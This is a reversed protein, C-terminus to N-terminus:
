EAMESVERIYSEMRKKLTSSVDFRSSVVSHICAIEKVQAEIPMKGTVSGTHRRHINLPAPHYGVKSGPAACAELYLRWDGALRYSDLDQGTRQLAAALADRRWVVGSVNLILNKISLYNTAFESGDTLLPETLAGYAVSSYYEKYSPMLPRGTEDIAKSDSFAFAVAPDAFLPVLTALFAPDCEDDAEAIWILEGRAAEIGKKWQGFVRGSNADNEVVSFTRPYQKEIHSLQALSDDTSCDDLVIIERIPYSQDFIGCLRQKLYRGYNYNPVVVSVSVDVAKLYTLLRFVYDEFNFSSSILERRRRAGVVAENAPTALHHEVADSLAMVDEFPTLTGVYDNEFLDTYGGGDEMAVVPLGVGLAELVTTPFPDERSTLLYVDSGSLLEAVDSHFGVARFKADGSRSGRHELMWRKLDRHIEGVWLFYLNHSRNSVIRGVQLFLDFGKRLDGYGVGIVIRADTPLELHARVRAYSGPDFSVHKYDGQPQVVTREGSAGSVAQFSQEVVKSAFVIVDSHRAIDRCTDGLDYEELLTPLEHVLSVVRMGATKMTQVYRAGPATNTVALNYGNDRASCLEREFSKENPCVSTNAVEDYQTLLNGGDLLIFKVRIGFCRILRKGIELLLHQAGHGHADHGVLLVSREGSAVSFSRLARATANLFAGGFYLDPELYAGEAWENWANVCVISEGEIPRERSFKIASTLWRQYEVPTSYAMSMGRQQRRADNDWMPLVSKILSFAPPKEALSIDVIDSYRYIIGEFSEDYITVADNIIPAEATVKHPPFEVAGDLAWKGPDFDDFQAMFILPKLGHNREFLVRWEAFRERARILSSPRYVILLPRGGLRIYREDAMHRAFDAVLGEDTLSDADQAILIHDSGGDWTRTWNENAWMLAFPMDISSDRLMHELPVDLLRKGNFWYYYYIFGYIGTLKAIKVQAHMSGPKSLDYFGLDRPIRPQYHGKYRPLGRSVNTWETFGKGWWADNEPFAYFQPLYFALVKAPRANSRFINTDLAEFYESPRTNRRVEGAIDETFEPPETAYGLTSGVRNYHLLPNEDGVGNLYRKKYFSTDFTKSPNRNEMHGNNFFHEAPDVGAVRVDSYTHLYYACDFGPIPSLHKAHRNELYHRLAAGDGLDVHYTRHYHEPDFFPSPSLGASEGLKIYHFLPNVDSTGAGFFIQRYWVTSFFPNPNLNASAGHEIYHNVCDIVSSNQDSIQKRYYDTDFLGSELIADVAAGTRPCIGENLSPSPSVSQLSEPRAKSALDPPIIELRMGSCIYNGPQTSPDLRIAQIDRDLIEFECCFTGDGIAALAHKSIAAESYGQGSDIYICPDIVNSSLEVTFRFYGRPLLSLNTGDAVDVFCQPDTTGSSVLVSEGLDILSAYHLSRIALSHTVHGWPEAKQTNRIVDEPYAFLIPVHTHQFAHQRAGLPAVRAFPM